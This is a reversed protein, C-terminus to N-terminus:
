YRMWCHIVSMGSVLFTLIYTHLDSLSGSGRAWCHRIAHQCLVVQRTILLCKFDQHLAVASRKKGKDAAKYALIVRGAVDQLLDHELEVKGQRLQAGALRQFGPQVLHRAVAAEIFQSALTGHM